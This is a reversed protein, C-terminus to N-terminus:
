KSFSEVGSCHGWAGEGGKGEMGDEFCLLGQRSRGHPHPPPVRGVQAPPPRGRGGNGGPQTRSGAPRRGKWGRGERRGVEAKGPSTRVCTGCPGAEQQHVGEGGAGVLGLADEDSRGVPVARWPEESGRSGRQGRTGQRSLDGRRAM